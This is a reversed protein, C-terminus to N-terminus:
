QYVFNIAREREWLENGRATENSLEAGHKNEFSKNMRGARMREEGERGKSRTVKRAAQIRLDSTLPLFEADHIFWRTGEKLM